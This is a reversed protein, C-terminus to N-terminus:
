YLYYEFRKNYRYFENWKYYTKRLNSMMSILEDTSKKDKGMKTIQSFNLTILFGFDNIFDNMDSKSVNENLFDKFITIM